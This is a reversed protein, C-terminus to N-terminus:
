RQSEYWDPAFALILKWLYLVLVLQLVPDPAPLLLLATLGTLTLFVSAPRQLKPDAGESLFASSALTYLSVVAVHAIAGPFLFVLAAPQLVHLSLFIRRRRRSARYFRNTGPTVNSVVGGALDVVLVALLATRWMPDGALVSLGVVVATLGGAAGLTLAVHFPTSETGLLEHLFSPIRLTSARPNPM